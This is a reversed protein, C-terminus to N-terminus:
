RDRMSECQKEQSEFWITWSGNKRFTLKDRNDHM